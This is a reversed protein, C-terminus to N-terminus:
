TAKFWFKTLDLITARYHQMDRIQRNMTTGNVVFTVTDDRLALSGVDYDLSMRTIENESIEVGDASTILQSTVMVERSGQWRTTEAGATSDYDEMTGGGAIKTLTANTLPPTM